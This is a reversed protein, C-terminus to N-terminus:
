SPTGRRAAGQVAARERHRHGGPRRLDRAARDAQRHVAPGRDALDRDRRHARRGAADARGPDDPLRRALESAARTLRVRSGGPRRPHPDIRRELVARGAATRRGPHIPNREVLERFEPSANYSAASGSCSVTSGSSAGGHDRECLRAASEVLTELVPQLDFPRAASSRAPDREHGDAAGAGRDARPEPGRAGPVAARERHRHGGPRRLDEAARDALRYLAEGDVAGVFIAGIVSRGASCRSRSPEAGSRGRTAADKAPYRPDACFTRSM